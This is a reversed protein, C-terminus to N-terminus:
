DIMFTTTNWIHITIVIVWIYTFNNVFNSLVSYVIHTGYVVYKVSLKKYLTTEYVYVILWNYFYFHEM